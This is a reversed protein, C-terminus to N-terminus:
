VPYSTQTNSKGKWTKKELQLVTSVNQSQMPSLLPYFTGPSPFPQFIKPNLPTQTKPPKTPIQPTLLGDCAIILTFNKPFGIFIQTKLKKRSIEILPTSKWFCSIVSPTILRWLYTLRLYIYVIKRFYISIKSLQM